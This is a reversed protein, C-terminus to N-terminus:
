RSCAQSTMASACPCPRTWPPRRVVLRNRVPPASRSCTLSSSKSSAGQLVSASSRGESGGSSKCPGGRAPGCVSMQDSPTTSYSSTAPPRAKEPLRLVLSAESSADLLSASPTDGGGPLGRGSAAGAT